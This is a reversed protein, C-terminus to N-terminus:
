LISGDSLENLRLNNNVLDYNMKLCFIVQVPYNKQQLNEDISTEVFYINWHTNFAATRIFEDVAQSWPALEVLTNTTTRKYRNLTVFRCQKNASGYVPHISSNTNKYFKVNDHTHISYSKM